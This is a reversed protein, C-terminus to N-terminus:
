WVKRLICQIELPDGQIGSYIGPTTYDRDFLNKITVALEFRHKTLNKLRLSMDAIWVGSYSNVGKSVPYILDRDSIYNCRAFATINETPRWTATLKATKEAGLDYPYNINEYIVDVTGDPWVFIQDIRRYTENPGSNDLFTVNASIDFSPTFWYRGHLELGQIDQYNPESLGAYPDELIHNEIRSTFWTLSAEAHNSLTWSAQISLDEIKELEPSNGSLLQRAYPTRYATGYLLKLIWRSTVNWVASTNYSINDEYSDHADYRLGLSLDFKGVKQSYQGFTSWLETNYDKQSIIPFFSENDPGLFDPLYSEFVNADDVQKKRYSVGGTFLASRSLFSRDYILEGYSTEENQSLTMDSIEFEPTYRSYYATMRVASSIDLTKKSEMKLFVGPFSRSEKWTLDEESRTIAYSTKNETVRGSLSFLNHFEIRGYADLYHSKSPAGDGMREDPPYLEGNEGWYRVLNIAGEDEYGERGSVSVIADFRGTDVGANISAMGSNGMGRYAIETEVGNIDGGTLPVANVIGAFADPGWLVSGPGQIIEIRKIPGLSLEYDLQHLSKTTDSNLPVTDYLFLVSNSIGRLYPLSGWEKKAMYFGPVMSLADSLTNVGNDKLEERTIVKAVAPAQMASEERRSALSLVELDEGVFMLMTSDVSNRTNDHTTSKGIATRPGVLSLVLNLLFVILFTGRVFRFAVDGRCHINKTM